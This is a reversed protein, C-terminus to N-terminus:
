TRINCPLMSTYRIHHPKYLPLVSEWYLEALTSLCMAMPPVAAELAAELNARGARNCPKFTFVVGSNSSPSQPMKM